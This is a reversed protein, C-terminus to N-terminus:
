HTSEGRDVQKKFMEYVTTDSLHRGYMKGQLEKEPEDDILEAEVVMKIKYRIVKRTLSHSHLNFWDNGEIFRSPTGIDIISCTLDSIDKLKKIEDNEVERLIAVAVDENINCTALHGYYGMRGYGKIEIEQTM